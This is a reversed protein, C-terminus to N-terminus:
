NFNKDYFLRTEDRIEDYVDSVDRIISHVWARYENNTTFNNSSNGISKFLDGLKSLQEDISNQLELVLYSKALIEKEEIRVQLIFEETFGFDVKSNDIEHDPLVFLIKHLQNLFVTEQESLIHLYEDVYKRERDNKEKKNNRKYNLTSIFYGIIGTALPIVLVEFYSIITEM